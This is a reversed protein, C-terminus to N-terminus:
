AGDGQIERDTLCQLPQPPASLLDRNLAGLLDAWWGEVFAYDDPTGYDQTLETDIHGALTAEADQVLEPQAARNVEQLNFHRALRAQLARARRSAESAGLNSLRFNIGQLVM